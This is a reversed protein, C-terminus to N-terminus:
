LVLGCFWLEVLVGVVVIEVEVVCDGVVFDDRVGEGGLVGFDGRCLFLEVGEWFVFEVVLYLDVVFMWCLWVVVVM